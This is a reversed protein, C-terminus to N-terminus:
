KKSRLVDKYVEKYAKASKEWSFDSRMANNILDRWSNHDHHYIHTAYRITHMMDHANFNAFSFGNGLKEYENYPEITDVLGGTRFRYDTRFWM